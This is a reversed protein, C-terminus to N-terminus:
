GVAFAPCLAFEGNAAVAPMKKGDNAPQLPFGTLMRSLAMLVKVNMTRSSAEHMLGVGDAGTHVVMAKQHELSKGDKSYTIWVVADRNLGCRYMEVFSGEVSINRTNGFLVQGDRCHLSAEFAIEFRSAYRHEM